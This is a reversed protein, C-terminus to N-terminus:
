ATFFILSYSDFTFDTINYTANAPFDADILADTVTEGTEASKIASWSVHSMPLCGDHGCNLDWSDPDWGQQTPYGFAYDGNSFDIEYRPAGGIFTDTKFTPEALDDVLLSNSDHITVQAYTPPASRHTLTTH